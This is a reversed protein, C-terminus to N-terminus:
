LSRGVAQAMVKLEVMLENMQEHSLAQDADCWADCPSPHCEVLLGDAGAAQRMSDIDERTCFCPYAKGDAMLRELEANYLLTRQTQLYPGADGGVEPGEDWDLGLWRMGDLIGQLSEETSRAQDTDEIRLVFTGQNKRAFLWNFLATRAGGVHLHGTPSPAFRVRVPGDHQAQPRKQM